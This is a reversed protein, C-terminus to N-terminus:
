LVLETTRRASSVFLLEMPKQCLASRAQLLLTTYKRFPVCSPDKRALQLDGGEVLTVVTSICAKATLTCFIAVNEERFSFFCAIVVMDGYEIIEVVLGVMVRIRVVVWIRVVVRFRFGVEVGVVVLLKALLIKRLGMVSAM